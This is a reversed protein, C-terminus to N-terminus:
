SAKKKPAFDPYNADLRGTFYDGYVFPEADGGSLPEIVTKMNPDFFYGVAYRDRDPRPNTARHATSRFRDGTWRALVDGVNIVFADLRPPAEVWSGDLLQVELGGSDDQALMTLFGYDTHPNIGFADPPTPPYHMLVLNTTPRHFFRTLFDAPKGLALSFAPLLAMGLERMATDYTKVAQVFWPNDPWQNPGQLRVSPDYDPASLDVEHRINFLERQNPKKGAAFRAALNIQSGGFPTYGRHSDNRTIAMKTAMPQDHFWRAAKFVDSRVEAPVGHNALYLFGVTECVRAIEDALSALDAPNGTRARGFDVVPITELSM